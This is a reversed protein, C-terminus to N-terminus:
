DHGEPFIDRKRLRGDHHEFQSTESEGPSITEAVIQEAYDEPDVVKIFEMFDMAYEGNFEYWDSGLLEAKENRDDEDFSALDGNEPEHHDRISRRLRSNYTKDIRLHLGPIMDIAYLLVLSIIFSYAATVVCGLIQYGIQKWNSEVWGGDSGFNNDAFIGVLITGVMGCVGHVAFIDLADDIRLFYKIRTSLNGVAGGIVGFVIPKWFSTHSSIYGGGPTFVVLGCVVGSTFSVMSIKRPGAVTIRPETSNQEVLNFDQLEIGESECFELPIASTYFDILMWVIGASCASLWTNVVIYFTTASLKYDCGSVFGCWGMLLLCMGIIMNSNSSSRYNAVLAPNRPGLIYSYALATFGSVVHICTGGAFDMVPLRNLQTSLWGNQNWYWYTIPNYVILSWCLIFVFMPVMRGREATCGPFTIVCCVMKLLGNFLFHMISLIEGRPTAYIRQDPDRLQRLVAYGLNGIFRNLALSYCLSYGWIFWDLFVGALILIPILLITFSSRRQILGAYFISMGLVMCLLLCVCFLMFLSDIAITVELHTDATESLM